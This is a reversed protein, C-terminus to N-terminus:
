PKMFPPLLFMVRNRHPLEKSVSQTKTTIDSIQDEGKIYKLIHLGLKQGQRVFHFRRAIHRNRKTMQDNKAMQVAAQNDCMIVTPPNPLKEQVTDYDPTGLYLFDYLMMHTHAGAMCGSCSGMYESETTSMAVPIQVQSNQDVLGGQFFIYYGTTSHGTDPCDQWSADTFVWIDLKDFGYKVALQHTPSKPVDSYFCIGLNWEKRLYGFLWLLAQFDIM